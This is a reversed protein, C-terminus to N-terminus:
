LPPNWDVKLSIRCKPCYVGSLTCDRGCGSWDECLHCQPRKHEVEAPKNCKKCYWSGGEGHHHAIWQNYEFYFDGHVEYYGWDTEIRDGNEGHIIGKDYDATMEHELKVQRRHTRIAEEFRKEDIFWVGQSKFAPVKVQGILVSGSEKASRRYWCYANAPANEEKMYRKIADKLKM